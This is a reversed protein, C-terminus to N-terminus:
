TALEASGSEAACISDIFSVLVEPIMGVDGYSFQASGKLTQSFMMETSIHKQLQVAFARSDM